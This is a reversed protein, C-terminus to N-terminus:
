ESLYDPELKPRIVKSRSQASGKLRRPLLRRPLKEYDFRAVFSVRCYLVIRFHTGNSTLLCDICWLMFARPCVHHDTHNHNSELDDNRHLAITELDLVSGGEIAIIGTRKRSLLLVIGTCKM